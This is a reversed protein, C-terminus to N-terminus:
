QKQGINILQYGDNRTLWSLFVNRGQALLLPHDSYGLTSSITKPAMWNKGDDSSEKLYVTSQVGDFEKWALWVQQGSAFLYPRSVNAGESGIRSPKSYTAGQNISNAYFVGSRKSGQTYWAVHFTGASSVAISPGHHPCADTKWDDDAVKRIPGAGSASIVQSAQDRIGGPFIARYALVPNGNPDLSGGIRCCECSSENAIREAQFNKGGDQSFSYAVSGGLRKQGGQKVASVLRKDIWSIFIDGDSRILVSPFRQSSSDNVLSEPSTFTKAGDTSRATNIQANWNTDKFFAYALFINGKQDAVIQPRADAGADLSKGHEAVKVAPSFTKGADSSQAVSVMGNATWSLLLKGDQTFFPTAANACELGASQCVNSPKPSAMSSSHDMQMQAQAAGGLLELLLASLLLFRNFSHPIPNM